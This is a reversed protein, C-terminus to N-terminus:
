GIRHGLPEGSSEPSRRSFVATLSFAAAAVASLVMVLVYPDVIEIRSEAVRRAVPAHPTVDPILSAPGWRALGVVAGFVVGFTVTLALLGALLPNTGASALVAVVAAVGALALVWGVTVPIPPAVVVGLVWVLAAVLGSGIGIYRVRSSVASGSVVAVAVLFAVAGTALTLMAAGDDAAELTAPHTHAVAVVAIVGAILYGAVRVTWAAPGSGLPGLMGARRAQWCVVALTSVMVALVAALPAFDITAAWALLATLTGLVVLLHVVPLRGSILTM